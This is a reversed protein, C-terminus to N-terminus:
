VVVRDFRQVPLEAFRDLGLAAEGALVGGALEDVECDLVGCRLPCSGAAPRFCQERELDLESVSQGFLGM